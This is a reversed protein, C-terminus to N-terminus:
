KVISFKGPIKGNGKQTQVIKKAAIDASLQKRVEAQPVHSNLALADPLTFEVDPWRIPNTM